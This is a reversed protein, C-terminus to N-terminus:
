MITNRKVVRNIYSCLPQLNTYHNLRIIDEECAASSLPKIHDIDWGFNFNGNYKGHNHWTMWLEFKSELHVKFEEFSCGLINTTKTNKKYGNKTLSNCIARRINFILKYQSDSILRKKVYNSKTKTIKEKNNKLYIKRKSKIKEKNKDRYKKCRILEKEKNKDRYGKRKKIMKDKNREYYERSYKNECLKCKPRYGNNSQESKGFDVLKKEINCKTCKKIEKNLHEITVIM